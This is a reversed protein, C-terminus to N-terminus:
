IHEVAAKLSDLKIYCHLLFSPPFFGPNRKRSSTINSSFTSISVNGSRVAQRVCARVNVCLWCHREADLAKGRNLGILLLRVSHQCNAVTGGM